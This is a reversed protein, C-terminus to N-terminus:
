VMFLSSRVPCFLLWVRKLALFAREAKCHVKNRIILVPWALTSYKTRVAKLNDVTSNAPNSSKKGIVGRCEAYRCEAYQCDSYFM